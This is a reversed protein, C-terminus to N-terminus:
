LNLKVNTVGISTLVHGRTRMCIGSALELTGETGGAKLSSASKVGQNLNRCM